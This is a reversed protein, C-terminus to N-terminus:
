GAKWEWYIPQGNGGRKVSFFESFIEKAAPPNRIVAEEDEGQEPDPNSYKSIRENVKNTWTRRSVGLPGARDDLGQGKKIKIMFEKILPQRFNKIREPQNIESHLKLLGRAGYGVEKIFKITLKRANSTLVVDARTLLETFRPQFAGCCAFEGGAGHEMNRWLEELQARNGIPSHDLVYRVRKRWTERAAVMQPNNCRWIPHIIGNSGHVSCAKCDDGGRAWNWRWTKDLGARQIAALEGISNGRGIATKLLSLNSGSWIRRKGREERYDDREVLYSDV